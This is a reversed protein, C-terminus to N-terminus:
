TRFQSQHRDPLVCCGCRCRDSRCDPRRLIGPSNRHGQTSWSFPLTGSSKGCDRGRPTGHQRGIAWTLGRTLCSERQKAPHKASPNSDGRLNCVHRDDLTHVWNSAKRLRDLGVTSLRQCCSHGRNDSNDSGGFVMRRTRAFIWRQLELASVLILRCENSGLFESESSFEGVLTMLLVAIGPISNGHGEAFVPLCLSILWLGLAVGALVTKRSLSPYSGIARSM